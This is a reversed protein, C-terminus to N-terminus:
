IGEVLRMAFVIPLGAAIVKRAAAGHDYPVRFYTISRDEDDFVAYCAANNQDRPQGVAGPLVLYQHQPQLAIRRGAQPVHSGMRGDDARRYLAPAHVHGSFVIRSRSAKLSREAEEVGTVYEWRIPEWASAHVFFANGHKRTLPLEALFGMQDSDLQSRTWEIVERAEAHMQPRVPRTVSYDHNGQVAVAGRGVYDMVTQVVWAPDAGYGVFDGTFAYQDVRQGEAHALCAEVAERNAHLDTLLALRM